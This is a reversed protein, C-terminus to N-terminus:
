CNQKNIVNEPKKCNNDYHKKVIEYRMILM